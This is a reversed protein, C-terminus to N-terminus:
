TPFWTNQTYMKGCFELIMLLCIFCLILYLCLGMVLLPSGEDEDGSKLINYLMKTLKPLFYLYNIMILIVYMSFVAIRPSIEFNM